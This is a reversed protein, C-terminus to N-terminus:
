EHMLGELAISGRETREAEQALDHALSDIWEDLDLEAKKLTIGRVVHSCFSRPGHAELRYRHERLEVEITKVGGTGRFGEGSKSGAALM